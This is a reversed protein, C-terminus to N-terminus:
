DSDVDVESNGLEPEDDGPDPEDDEEDAKEDTAVASNAGRGREQGDNGGGGATEEEADDSPAEHSEEEEDSVDDFQFKGKPESKRGGPITHGIALDTYRMMM